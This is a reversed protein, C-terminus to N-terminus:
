VLLCLIDEATNMAIQFGKNRGAAEDLCAYMAMEILFGEVVIDAPDFPRDSLRRIIEDAAWRSYSREEFIEAPWRINPEFLNEEAYQRVTEIAIENM